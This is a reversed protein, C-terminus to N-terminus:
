ARPPQEYRRSKARAPGRRSSAGEWSLAVGSERNEPREGRSRAGRTVAGVVHFTEGLGPSIAQLRECIIEEMGLLRALTVM